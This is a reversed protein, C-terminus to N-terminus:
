DKRITIIMRSGIFKLLFQPILNDFFLLLSYLRGKVISKDRQLGGTAFFILFDSFTVDFRLDYKFALMSNLYNSNRNKTFIQTPINNDADMPSDSLIDSQNDLDLRYSTFEHHFIKFIIFSFPSIYPEIFIIRGDNKVCRAIENVANFPNKLHHLVDIGIALDFVNKKFPIQHCDLQLDIEPAPLVDSAFLDVDLFYQKLFNSGSGIELVISNRGIKAKKLLNDFYLKLEKRQINQKHTEFWEISM